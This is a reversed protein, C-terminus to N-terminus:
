VRRGLRVVCLSQRTRLRLRLPARLPLMPTSLLIIASIVSEVFIASAYAYKGSAQIVPPVRPHATEDDIQNAAESPYRIAGLGM